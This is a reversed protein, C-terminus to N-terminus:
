RDPKLAVTCTMVIRRSLAPVPEPTVWASDLIWHSIVTLSAQGGPRQSGPDVDLQCAVTHETGKVLLQGVARWGSPVWALLEMRFSVEPYIGADLLGPGTLLRDFIVSGTSLASTDAALRAQSDELPQTTLVRGTLPLRGRVHGGAIRATFL